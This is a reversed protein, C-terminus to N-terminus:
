VRYSTMWLVSSTIIAAGVWYCARPWNAEFASVASVILYFAILVLMMSTSLM